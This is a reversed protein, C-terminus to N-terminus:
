KVTLTVIELNESSVTPEISDAIMTFGEGIVYTLLVSHTHTHTHTHTHLKTDLMSNTCM